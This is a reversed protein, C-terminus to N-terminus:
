CCYAKSIVANGSSQGMELLTMRGAEDYEAQKVYTYPNGDEGTLSLLSGQADYTYTLVEGDPLTVTVPLDASNYSFSTEYTEAALTDTGQYILKTQEITRGRNDYAYLTAGSGDLMGTMRGITNATSGGYDVGLFSFSQDDYYYAVEATTACADPGSYSKGTLRNLSDYSLTTVCGRADTQTSLSGVGNYTYSWAGLDPDVM